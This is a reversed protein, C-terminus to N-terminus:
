NGYRDRRAKLSDKDLRYKKLIDAAYSSASGKSRVIRFTRKNEDTLDVEASLVPLDLSMVEHFHTVYLGFHGSEGIREATDTLLKFGLVEDTGSFTENFLLFAKRDQAEKLIKETREREEDLRGINDFREDKPFHSLVTDFPYIEAEKAFIPCGATFLILNIGVARLYTTKGGGNAGIIFGFPENESFVADNPVISECDKALLSVDYLEKALYKPTSSIKSLCHPVGIKDARQILGHIELFFKIESIYSIPEGFDVGDYKALEAEIKNAYDAYLRCIADSIPLNIRINQPKRKAVTFGLNEACLSISDFESVADYDPTLLNKDAFSLLCVSMKQLLLEVRQLSEKMDSLLKKISESSFYEAAKGFLDGCNHMAALKECSSLYSKLVETQRYFRDMPIETDNLLRLARDAESLVSLLEETRLLNEDTDLLSFLENRRLIESQGCPHELVSITQASLIRDLRLDSFVASPLLAKDSSQILRPAFKM